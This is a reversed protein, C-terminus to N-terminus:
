LLNTNITESIQAHKISSILPLPVLQNNKALKNKGWSKKLLHESLEPGEVKSHVVFIIEPVGFIYQIFDQNTYDNESITCLVNYICM